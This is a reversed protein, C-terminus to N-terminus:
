LDATAVLLEAGAGVVGVTGGQAALHRGGQGLAGVGHVLDDDVADVQGADLLRGADAHPGGATGADQADGGAVVAALEAGEVQVQVLQKLRGGPLGDP